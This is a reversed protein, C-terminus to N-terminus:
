NQNTNHSRESNKGNYVLKKIQAHKSTTNDLGLGLDSQSCSIYKCYITPDIEFRVCAETVVVM